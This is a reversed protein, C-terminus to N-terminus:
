NAANVLDDWSKVKDQGDLFPMVTEALEPAFFIDYHFFLHKRFHGFVAFAPVYQILM